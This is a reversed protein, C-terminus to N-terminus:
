RIEQFLDWRGSFGPAYNDPQTDLMMLRLSDAQIMQNQTALMLQVRAAEETRAQYFPDGSVTVSIPQPTGSAVGEVLLARRSSIRVPAFQDETVVTTATDDLQGVLGAAAIGTGAADLGAVIGIQDTVVGDAGLNPKIRQYDIGGIKDTAVVVDATGTGTPPLTVNDAM